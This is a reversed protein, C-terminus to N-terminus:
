QGRVPPRNRISQRGGVRASRRVPPQPTLKDAGETHFALIRYSNGRADTHTHRSSRSSRDGEAPFQSVAAALGLAGSGRAVRRPSLLDAAALPVDVDVMETADLSVPASDLPPLGGAAAALLRKAEAMSLVPPAGLETPGEAEDQPQAEQPLTQEEDVSSMMVGGGGVGGAAAKLSKRSSGRGTPGGMVSGSGRRVYARSHEPSASLSLRLDGGSEEMDMDM